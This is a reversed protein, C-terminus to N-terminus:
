FQDLVKVAIELVNIMLMNFRKILEYKVKELLNETTVLKRVVKIHMKNLIM